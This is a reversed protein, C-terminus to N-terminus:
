EQFVFIIIINWNSYRDGLRDRDKEELAKQYKDAENISANTIYINIKRLNESYCM